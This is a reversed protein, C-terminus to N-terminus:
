PPLDGPGLFPPNIESITVTKWNNADRRVVYCVRVRELLSGDARYRTGDVLIMALDEAMPWTKLEM